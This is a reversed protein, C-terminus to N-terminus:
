STFTIVGETPSISRQSPECQDAFLLEPSADEAIKASFAFIALTDSNASVAFM